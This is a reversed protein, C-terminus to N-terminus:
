TASPQVHLFVFRPLSAATETSQAHKAVPKTGAITYLWLFAPLVIIKGAEDLVSGASVAVLVPV